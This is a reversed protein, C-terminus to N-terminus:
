RGIKHSDAGAEYPYEKPFALGSETSLSILDQLNIESRGGVLISQMGLADAGAIDTTPNDGIMVAAGPGVGLAQCARVFLRPGPKGITEVDINAGGAGAVLAAYLIGTEPVVRNDRGPHTIDPNAVILRAGERLCNIARELRSYSFRTDRLLVVVDARDQVIPVELSRAYGKLRGDGLILAGRPRREAARHVAEVGALLIRDRSIKVGSNGLIRAFDEPLQTSNNSVIAIKSLYKQIFPIAWHSPQNAVAICGDWDILIGAAAELADSASRLAAGKQFKEEQM